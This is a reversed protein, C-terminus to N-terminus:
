AQEWQERLMRACNEVIKAKNAPDACGCELSVFGQYGIAKLGRFGDVYNDAEGDECPTNRRRRSAIHVHKLHDGASIFAGQDSTEEWTMHWFDGMMAIGPNDVDKCMSAADALTRMFYCEDRNLPELLIRTGHKHAFDGLEQFLIEKEGPQNDRGPKRADRLKRREDERDWRVFGTLRTRAEKHPLSGDADHHNFSPVIIMGVAGVEGAAEVIRKMSDMCRQRMFTNQAIIWSEFGACIASIQIPRNKLANNLEKVRDPLNGGGVELGEYGWREMNDLKENLSDGAMPGEQSSLRLKAQTRGHQDARARNVAVGGATMAAATAASVKLFERRNSPIPM